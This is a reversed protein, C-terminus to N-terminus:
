NRVRQVHFREIHSYAQSDIFHPVSLTSYIIEKFNEQRHASDDFRKKSQLLVAIGIRLLLM